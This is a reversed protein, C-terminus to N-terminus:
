SFLSCFYPLLNFLKGPIHFILDESDYAVNFVPEFTIFYRVKSLVLVKLNQFWIKYVGRRFGWMEYYSGNLNMLCTSVQLWTDPSQIEHKTRPLVLNKIYNFVSQFDRRVLFFFWQAWRVGWFMISKWLLRRFDRLHLINGRAAIIRSQVASKFFIQREESPSPFSLLPLKLCHTFIFSPILVKHQTYGRISSWHSRLDWVRRIKASNQM